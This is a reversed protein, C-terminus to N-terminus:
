THVGNKAIDASATDVWINIPLRDNTMETEANELMTEFTVAEDPFTSMGIKLSLGLKDKTVAQLKRVIEYLSARDTEPLLTVFHDNRKTVIALDGLETVLLEALRASLYKELTERKIEEVFRYLPTDELRKELSEGSDEVATIALLAAARQHRRARRIERYIQAQGTDFPQLDENFEGITLSTVVKQWEEVQLSIMRALVVTLSIASIEAIILALNEGGLELGWFWKLLFYPPLVLAFLWQMPLKCLQASLLLLVACAPAFIYVFSAINIPAVIREVNYFLFFWGCMAIFLYRLHRM